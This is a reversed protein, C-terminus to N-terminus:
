KTIGTHVANAIVNWLGESRYLKFSHFGQSILQEITSLAANLTDYQTHAQTSM